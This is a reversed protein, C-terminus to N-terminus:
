NNKKKSRKSIRKKKRSGGDKYFPNGPTRTFINSRKLSMQKSKNMLKKMKKSRVGFVSGKHEFLLEGEDDCGKFPYTKSQTCRDPASTIKSKDCDIIDDFVSDAWSTCNFVPVSKRSADRHTMECYINKLNWYYTVSNLYFTNAELYSKLVTQRLKSDPNEISHINHHLNGLKIQNDINNRKITELEAESLFNSINKINLTDNYFKSGYFDDININDLNSRLKSLNSDNLLGTAVLEIYNFKPARDSINLQCMAKGLLPYDPTYLTGGKYAASEAYKSGMIPLKSLVKDIFGPKSLDENLYAGSAFGFSYLDSKREGNNLYFHEIEIAMHGGYTTKGTAGRLMGEARGVFSKALINQTAYVRVIDGINFIEYNRKIRLKSHTHVKGNYSPEYMPQVELIPKHIAGNLSKEGIRLPFSRSGRQQLLDDISFTQYESILKTFTEDKDSVSSSFKKPIITNTSYSSISINHSAFDEFDIKKLDSKKYSFQDINPPNTGDLNKQSYGHRDYRAIGFLFINLLRENEGMYLFGDDEPTSNLFNLFILLENYSKTRMYKKFELMKTPETENWNFSDIKKKKNFDIWDVLQQRLKTIMSIRKHPGHYKDLYYYFGYSAFNNILTLIKLYEIRSDVAYPDTKKLTPDLLNPKLIKDIFNYKLREFAGKKCDNLLSKHSSNNFYSETNLNNENSVSINVKPMIVTNENTPTSFESEYAVASPKSLESNNNEFDVMNLQNLNNM